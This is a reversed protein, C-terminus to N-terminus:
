LRSRSNRSKEVANQTSDGDLGPLKRQIINLCAPNVVETEIQVTKANYMLWGCSLIKSKLEPTCALYQQMDRFPLLRELFDEKGEEFFPQMEDKKVYARRPWNNAIRDLM